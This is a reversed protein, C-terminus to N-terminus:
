PEALVPHLNTHLKRVPKIHLIHDLDTTIKPIPQLVGIHPHDETHHTMAIAILVPTVTDHLVGITADVRGKIPGRHSGYRCPQSQSRSRSHRYRDWHHHRSTSRIHHRTNSNQRHHHAPTGPPPIWHPCDAEIHGYEDCEFCHVNPCHHAIHGLEQCQFCWDERNTM